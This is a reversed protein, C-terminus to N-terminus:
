IYYIITLLYIIFNMFINLNLFLIININIIYAQSDYRKLIEMQFSVYDNKLLLYSGLKDINLITWLHKISSVRKSLWIFNSMSLGKDLPLTVTNTKSM